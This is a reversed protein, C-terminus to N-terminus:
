VVIEIIMNEPSRVVAEYYGNGTRCPASAMLGDRRFLEAIADAREYVGESFAIHAWGCAETPHTDGM